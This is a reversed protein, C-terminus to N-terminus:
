SSFPEKSGDKYTINITVSLLKVLSSGLANLAAMGNSCSAAVGAVTCGGSLDFFNSWRADLIGGIQGLDGPGQVPPPVYVLPVSAGLPDLEIRSPAGSGFAGGVNYDHQGTGAPTTHKWTIYSSSGAPMQKALVEGGPSYVYGVTKQGSSNTEEIVAGGLATSRLYYTTLGAAV